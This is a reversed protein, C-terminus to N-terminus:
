EGHGERRGRERGLVFDCRVSDVASATLTHTSAKFKLAGDPLVVGTGGLAHGASAVRESPNQPGDVTLQAQRPSM